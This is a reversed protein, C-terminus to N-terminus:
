WYGMCICYNCDVATSDMQHINVDSLGLLILHTGDWATM